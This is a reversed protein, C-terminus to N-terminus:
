LTAETEPAPPESRDIPHRINWSEIATLVFFSGPGKAGCNGCQVRKWFIGSPWICHEQGDLAKQGCYPCGILASCGVAVLETSPIVRLVTKM